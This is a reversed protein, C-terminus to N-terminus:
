QRTETEDYLRHCAEFSAIFFRLLGVEGPDLVFFYKVRNPKIASAFRKVFFGEKAFQLHDIVKNAVM